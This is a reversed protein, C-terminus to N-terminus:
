LGSFAICIQSAQYCFFRWTFSVLKHHADLFFHIFSDRSNSHKSAKKRFNKKQFGNESWPCYIASETRRQLLAERDTPDKGELLRAGGVVYSLAASVSEIEIAVAPHFSFKRLTTKGQFRSIRILPYPKTEDEGQRTFEMVRIFQKISSRSKECPTEPYQFIRRRPAKNIGILLRALALTRLGAM